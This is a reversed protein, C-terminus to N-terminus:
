MAEIRALVSEWNINNFFADVYQRQQPLAVESLDVIASVGLELLKRALVPASKLDAAVEGGAGVLLYPLKERLTSFEGEDDLVIHQVRGFTEELLQRLAWSKGGGSNAQILMRSRTLVDLDVRVGAAHRYTLLPVTV